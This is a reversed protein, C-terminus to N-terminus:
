VKGTSKRQSSEMSAEVARVTPAVLSDHTLRFEYAATYHARDGDTRTSTLETVLEPRVAGISDLKLWQDGEFYLQTTLPVYDPATVKFHIHRPRYSTRRVADLLRRVPGHQTLEYAGPVVTQFEFDGNEDAFLVGRLRTETLTPDQVDYVGEANAHWVDLSAGAIAEGAASLVRGRFILPDGPEDPGALNYPLELQPPNHVYFPGEVNSVTAGTESKAHTITDVVSLVYLADALVTMEGAHATRELFAIVHSLEGETIEHDIAFARLTVIMEDLLYRGRELDIPQANTLDSTADVAGRDDM